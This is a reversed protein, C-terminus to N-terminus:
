QGCVPGASGAVAPSIKCSIILAQFALLHSRLPRLNWAAVLCPTNRIAPSSRVIVLNQTFCVFSSQVINQTRKKKQRKGIDSRLFIQKFVCTVKSGQLKLSAAHFAPWYLASSTIFLNTLLYSCTSNPIAIFIHKKELNWEMKWDLM